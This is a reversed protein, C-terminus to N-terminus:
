QYDAIASLEVETRSYASAGQFSYLLDAGLPLAPDLAAMLTEEPPAARGTRENVYSYRGAEIVVIGGTTGEYAIAGEMVWLEYVGIEFVTGRTSATASPTHVNFSQKSGAPPNADTRMRGNQLSVAITETGARDSIETVSLRTLPRVTLLSNGLRILATSKFGTSVVTDVAIRQGQVAPEWSASGAQKIEVTGNMEQLVAQQAFMASVGIGFFLLVACVMKYRNM